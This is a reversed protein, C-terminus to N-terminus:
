LGYYSLRKLIKIEMGEYYHYYNSEEMMLINDSKNEMITYKLM